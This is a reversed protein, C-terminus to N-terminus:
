FFLLFLFKLLILLDLLTLFISLYSPSSQFHKDFRFNDSLSSFLIYVDFSIKRPNVLFTIQAPLQFSVTVILQTFYILGFNTKHFTNFFWNIFVCM